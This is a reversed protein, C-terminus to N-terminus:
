RARGSGDCATCPGREDEYCDPPHQRPLVGGGACAGCEGGGPETFDRALPERDALYLGVCRYEDARRCEEGIAAGCDACATGARYTVPKGLVDGEENPQAPPQSVPNPTATLRDAEANAMAIVADSVYDLESAGGVSYGILQAFQERAERPFSLRAIANMDIGGHDLLHRVIPNAMFRVVGHEDLVIPQIPFADPKTDQCGEWSFAGCAACKRDVGNTNCREVADPEPLDPCAGFMKGFPNSEDRECQADCQVKGPRVVHLGCSPKCRSWTNGHGDTFERWPEDPTAPQDPALSDRLATLRVNIDALQRDDVFPLACLLADPLVDRQGDVYAGRLAAAIMDVIKPRVAQGAIGIIGPDWLSHFVREAEDYWRDTM